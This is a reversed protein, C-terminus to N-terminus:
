KEYLEAAEAPPLEARVRIVNSPPIPVHDILTKCAMRYNNDSHEPPVAREDGWFLFIRSWDLSNRYREVLYMNMLRPTDGGSLAVVFRGERSIAQRANSAFREAAHRAVDEADKCAIIEKSSMIMKWLELDARPACADQTGTHEYFLWAPLM